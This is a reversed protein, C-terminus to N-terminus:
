QIFITLISACTQCLKVSYKQWTVIKLNILSVLGPLDQTENTVPVSTYLSPRTLRMVLFCLLFSLFSIYTHTHLFDIIALTLLFIWWLYFCLSVDLVILVSESSYRGKLTLLHERERLGTDMKNTKIQNGLPQIGLFIRWKNVAPERASTGSQIGSHLETNSARLRFWGSINLTTSDYHFTEKVPFMAAAEGTTTFVFVRCFTPIRRNLYM